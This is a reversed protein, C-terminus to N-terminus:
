IKVEQSNNDLSNQLAELIKVVRLGNHGDNLPKKKEVICDIFHNIEEKLPEKNEIDPSYVDGSHLAIQYEGFPVNRTAEIINANKDFIKIKESQSVDDFLLMKKSGVITIDRIKIPDIWSLIINAMIKDEFKISASIVDQIGNQLYSEGTAIVTKPKQNIFYLLMSIDHPALDYLVNVDKRVPGLNRRQFHFHRIVGLEGKDIIKKIYKVAPNFLFVHGVSLLVDNASAIKILEEAEKVSYTLPKEIFVHKKALLCDKALKYHTKTPTVILVASVSRDELIAKYNKTTTTHPYKQKIQKLSNDLLDACYALEVRDSEDILRAINPGWYGYGILGFKIKAM